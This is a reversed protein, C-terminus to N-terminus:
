YCNLMKTSQSEYTCRGESPKTTCNRPRNMDKEIKSKPAKVTCYLVAASGELRQEM